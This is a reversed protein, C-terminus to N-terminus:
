RRKEGLRVAALANRIVFSRKIAVGNQPQYALAKERDRDAKPTIADTRIEFFTSPLLMKGSVPARTLLALM